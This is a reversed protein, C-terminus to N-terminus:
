GAPPSGAARPVKAQDPPVRWAAVPRARNRGGGKRKSARFSSRAIRHEGSTSQGTRSVRPSATEASAASADAGSRRGGASRGHQEVLREEAARQRLRRRRRACCLSALDRHRAVGGLLRGALRGAADRLQALTVRQLAGPPTLATAGGIAAGQRAGAPPADDERQYANYAARSSRQPVGANIAHSSDGAPEGERLRRM